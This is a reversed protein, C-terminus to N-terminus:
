IKELARIASITMTSSVDLNISITNIIYDGSINSDTDYIAIRTNPQLYYIPICSISVTENYSTYQHLLQRIFDYGSNYTGGTALAMYITDPVQYYRQGRKRCEQRIKGMETSPNTSGSQQILVIDPIIPEFVCNVDDDNVVYARRGINNVSFEAIKAESDIFDLFYDIAVPTQLTSDKFKSHNVWRGSEYVDPVIDYIKPWENVLETYYYNSDTGFPEASVGQFYLQTRWDTTTVRQMTSSTSIYDYVGTGDDAWTYIIGDAQSYYFIGYAGKKPFNSKSSYRIPCHWKLINDYPDEYQFAYYTNGIKPKKDIALHYRIPRKAGETTQRVGWITFDNKIMGYQPTNSYSTILNADNFEYVSKGNSMDLLYDSNELKGSNLHQIIVKSQSNNLYNKIQQFVFNGDVDYFYEFNGLVQKIKDLVDVISDGGDCVLEGPFTFDTYIFGVDYGYEFPSGQVSSWGQQELETKKNASVTMQYQDGKQLMYLPSSGVWKMVQKVRTDLDSIIIKGLQQGGFHNVLEQIIQYITPRSIIEKGDENITVYNDFVTSAPLTGGCEGNLLCMKDKLQLSIIVSDANHSISPNVIVYIGLPFWLVPYQEYKKTFNIFGIELSVKKNISILNDVKTVDNIIGDAVLTINCTRRVASKGDLSINANIVRGEIKEIPDQQWNLVTINVLYEKIHQNNLQELFASDNLYPYHKKM